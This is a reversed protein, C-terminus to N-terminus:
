VEFNTQSIETGPNKPKGIRHPPIGKITDIIKEVLITKRFASIPMNSDRNPKEPATEDVQSTGKESVNLYKGQTYDVSINQKIKESTFRPSPLILANLSQTPEPAYESDVWEMRRDLDTLTFSHVTTLEKQSPKNSTPKNAGTRNMQNVTELEPQQSVARLKLSNSTPFVNTSVITKIVSTSTFFLTFLLENTQKNESIHGSEVENLVTEEFDIGCIKGSRIFLRKLTQVFTKRRTFDLCLHVRPLEAIWGHLTFSPPLILYLLYKPNSDENCSLFYEIESRCGPNLHYAESLCVVMVTSIQLCSLWTEMNDVSAGLGTLGAM